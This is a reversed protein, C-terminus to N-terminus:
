EEWWDTPLILTLFNYYLIKEYKEQDLRGEVERDCGKFAPETEIM